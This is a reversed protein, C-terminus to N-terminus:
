KSGVRCGFFHLSLLGDSELDLDLLVGVSGWCDLLAKFLGGCAFLESTLLNLGLHNLGVLSALGLNLFM